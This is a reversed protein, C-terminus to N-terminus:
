RGRSEGLPKGLMISIGRDYDSKLLQHQGVFWDYEQKMKGLRIKLSEAFATAQKILTATLTDWEKIHSEARRLEAMAVDLTSKVMESDEDLLYSGADASANGTPSNAGDDILTKANDLADKVKVIDYGTSFDDTDSLQYTAINDLASDILVLIADTSQTGITEDKKKRMLFQLAKMAGYLTVLYDFDEPFGGIKTINCTFDQSWTVGDINFANNGQKTVRGTLGEMSSVESSDLDLATNSVIVKNGTSLGHATYAFLDGTYGADDGQTGPQADVGTLTTGSIGTYNYEVAPYQVESYRITSTNPLADITSNEIWYVPDNVTPKHISNGSNYRDKFKSNIRRCPYNKTIYERTVNFIKTSKIQNPTGATFSKEIACLELMPRPMMNMLEKAGASLWQTTIEQYNVSSATDVYATDSSANFGTLAEIEQAFTEDFGSRPM